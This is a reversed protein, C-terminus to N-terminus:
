GRPIWRLLPRTWVLQLRSVNRRSVQNLPSYGWLSQTRRWSPWDEAAPDELMADTVPVFDRQQAHASLMAAGAAALVCLSKNLWHIM